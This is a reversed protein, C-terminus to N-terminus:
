VKTWHYSRSMETWHYNGSMKTWDIGRCDNTERNCM